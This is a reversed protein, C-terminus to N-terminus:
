RHGAAAVMARPQPFAARTGAGAAARGVARTQDNWSPSDWKDLVDYNSYPTRFDSM